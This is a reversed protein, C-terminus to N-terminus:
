GKSLFSPHEGEGTYYKEKDEKSKFGGEEYFNGPTLVIYSGSNSFYEGKFAYGHKVRLLEGLTREQWHTKGSSTNM